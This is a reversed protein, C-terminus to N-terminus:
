ITTSSIKTNAQWIGNELIKSKNLCNIGQDPKELSYELLDLANCPVHNDYWSSHALRPAFYHLLRKARSFDSGSGATKELGYKERLIAFEPCEFHYTIVSKEDSAFDQNHFLIGSYLVTMQQIIEKREEILERMEKRTM